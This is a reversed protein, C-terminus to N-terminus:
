SSSAKDSKRDKRLAYKWLLQQSTIYESNLTRFKESMSIACTKYFLAMIHAGAQALFREFREADLYFVYSFIDAMVTASRPADDFLSLEGFSDGEEMTALRHSDGTIPDNKYVSLSGHLILYLGRSPEGEIVAHSAKRISQVEGLKYIDRLIDPDFAKFLSIQQLRDSGWDPDRFQELLEPSIVGTKNM